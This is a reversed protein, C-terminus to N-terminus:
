SGDQKDTRANDGSQGLLDGKEEGGKATRGVVECINKRKSQM